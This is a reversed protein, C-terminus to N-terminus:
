LPLGAVAVLLKPVNKKIAFNFTFKKNVSVTTSKFSHSICFFSCMEDRATHDASHVSRTTM